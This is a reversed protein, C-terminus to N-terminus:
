PARQEFEWRTASGGFEAAAEIFGIVVHPVVRFILGPQGDIPWEYKQKYADAVASPPPGDWLRAQRELVLIICGDAIMLSRRAKAVLTDM